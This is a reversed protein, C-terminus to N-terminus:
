IPRLPRTECLAKSIDLMEKQKPFAERFDATNFNFVLAQVDTTSTFFTDRTIGNNERDKYALEVM